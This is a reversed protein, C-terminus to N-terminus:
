VVKDAVAAEFAGSAILSGSDAFPGAHEPPKDTEELTERTINSPSLGSSRKFPTNTSHLTGLETLHRAAAVFRWLGISM